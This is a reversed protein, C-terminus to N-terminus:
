HQTQSPPSFGQKKELFLPWTQAEVLCDEQAEQGIQAQDLHGKQGQFFVRKDEGGREEEQQVPLEELVAAEERDRHRQVDASIISAAEFGHSRRYM